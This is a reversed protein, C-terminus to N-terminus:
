SCYSLRDPFHIKDFDLREADFTGHERKLYRIISIGARKLYLDDEQGPVPDLEYFEHKTKNFEIRGMCSENPGFQYIVKKADEMEKILAVYIGM